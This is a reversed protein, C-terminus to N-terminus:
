YYKIHIFSLNTIFPTTNESVKFQSKTSYILMPYLRYTFNSVLM